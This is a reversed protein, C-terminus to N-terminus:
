SLLAHIQYPIGLEVDESTRTSRAVKCAACLGMSSDLAERTEADPLGPNDKRMKKVHRQICRQLHCRFSAGPNKADPHPSYTCDRFPCRPTGAGGPDPPSDLGLM